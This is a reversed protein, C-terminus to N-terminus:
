NEGNLLFIALDLDEKHTLKINYKGTNTCHIKGGIREVLMNDDTMSVDYSDYSQLAKKYLETKFVQPTQVLMLGGRDVTGTINGESDVSKVTDTVESAATAAGYKVADLVVANIIKETVLCRAADHIAVFDSNEEAFSFGIKASESRTAGGVTIKKVKSFGCLEEKAFDVEDNKVVVVISNIIPCNNFIRVTRHLVSEGAVILKQKTVDLKMRSGSGAALIVAAVRYSM